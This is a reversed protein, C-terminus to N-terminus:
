GKKGRLFQILFIPATLDQTRKAIIIRFVKSLIM